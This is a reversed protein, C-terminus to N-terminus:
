MRFNKLSNRLAVKGNYIVVDEGLEKRRLLEKRLDSWESQQMKTKDNSIFVRKFKDKTRLDRSKRMIEVKSSRNRLTVKVPRVKGSVNRGLRFIADIDVDDCGIAGFVEDVLTEDHARRESITGEDSEPLGFLIINDRRRDRDEMEDLIESKSLRIESLSQKIENIEMEQKNQVTRFSEISTELNGIRSELDQLCNGLLACEAKLSRLIECKLDNTIGLIDKLTAPTTDLNLSNSRTAKGNVM